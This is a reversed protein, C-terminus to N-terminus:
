LTAYPRHLQFYFLALSNFSADHDCTSSTYEGSGEAKSTLLICMNLTTPLCTLILLGDLLAAPLFGPFLFDIGKTLPLGVLFPWAAFTVAQILSNLKMNVAANARYFLLNFM